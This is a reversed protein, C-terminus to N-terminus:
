YIYLTDVRSEMFVMVRLGINGDENKWMVASLSYEHESYEENIQEEMKLLLENLNVEQNLIRSDKSFRGYDTVRCKTVYANGETDCMVSMVIRENTQFGAYHFSYTAKFEYCYDNSHNLKFGHISYGKQSLFKECATLALEAKVETCGLAIHDINKQYESFINTGSYFKYINGKDDKYHDYTYGTLDGYDTQIPELVIKEGNTIIYKEETLSTIQNFPNGEITTPTNEFEFDNEDVSAVNMTDEMETQNNTLEDVNNENEATTTEVLNQSLTLTENVRDARICSILLCSCVILAVCKFVKM